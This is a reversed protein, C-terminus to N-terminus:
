LGHAASRYERLLQELKPNRLPATSRRTSWLLAKWKKVSGAREGTAPRSAALSTGCYVFRAMRRGLTVIWVAPWLPPEGGAKLEAIQGPVRGIWIKSRDGWVKSDSDETATEPDAAFEPIGVSPIDAGRIGDRGSRSPRGFRDIALCNTGDSWQWGDSVTFLVEHAERETFQADIQCIPGAASVPIRYRNGVAPILPQGNCGISLPLETWDVVIDPLAFPFYREGAGCRVGGEFRLRPAPPRSFIRLQSALGGTGRVGQGRFLRWGRPMGSRVSQEDWVACWQQGWSALRSAESADAALFFGGSAPLLRSELYGQVGENSGDVFVRVRAAHLVLRLGTTRCRFQSREGWPVSDALFESGTAADCFAGTIEGAGAQCTLEQSGLRDATVVLDAADVERPLRAVFRSEVYGAPDIEKLWIRVGARRDDSAPDPSHAASTGDWDRLEAQLLQLLETRFDHSSGSLLLEITRRRLRNGAHASVAAAIEEPALTAGPELDAAEFIAPLLRREADTLIAQAIPLGVHIWKGAAQAKFTGISGRLEGTAWVELDRWLSKMQMFEPPAGSGLEGLLDWLRPYYAYSAWDGERGAALAFLCLHALYPPPARRDWRAQAVLARHCMSGWTGAPGRKVAAVFDREAEHDGGLEALLDPTTHLYVRHGAHAAGFFRAFLRSNWEEYTM